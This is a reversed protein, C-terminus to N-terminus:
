RRLADRRFLFSEGDETTVILWRETMRCTGPIEGMYMVSDPTVWEVRDPHIFLV